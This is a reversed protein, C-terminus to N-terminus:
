PNGLGYTERVVDVMKNSKWEEVKGGQGRVSATEEGGSAKALGDQSKFSFSVPDVMDRIIISDGLDHGEGCQCQCGM